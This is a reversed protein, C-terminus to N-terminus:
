PHVISIVEEIFELSVETHVVRHSIHFSLELLQLHPITLPDSFVDYFPVAQCALDLVPTMASKAPAEVISERILNFVLDRTLALGITDCFEASKGLLDVVPVPLVLFFNRM